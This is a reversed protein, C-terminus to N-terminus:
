KMPRKETFPSTRDLPLLELIQLTPEFDTLPQLRMESM